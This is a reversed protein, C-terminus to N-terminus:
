KAMAGIRTIYKDAERGYQSNPYNSLKEYMEKAAAMDGKQELAMAAKMYFLPSTLDNSNMSAAKKYQSIGKDTDGLEMYADGIGGQAMSSLMQDRGKYQGLYSAANEFDKLNLYCVGAYYKALNGTETNGKFFGSYDDIIELFGPYQGDGNLALEYNDENFYSQAQYIAEQSEAQKNPFFVRNIFFYGALLFFLLSVLGIVWTKNNEIFSEGRGKLVEIDFEGEAVPDIFTKEIAEISSSGESLGSEGDVTQKRDVRVEEGFENLEMEPKAQRYTNRTPKKKRHRSKPM